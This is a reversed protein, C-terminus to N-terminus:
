IPAPVTERDHVHTIMSDVQEILNFGTTTLRTAMTVRAIPSGPLALCGPDAVTDARSFGPVTALGLTLESGDIRRPTSGLWHPVVHALDPADRVRDRLPVQPPCPLGLLAALHELMLCSEGQRVSIHCSLHTSGQFRPNVETFLPKGDHVLYDVGFSGRYGHRRLWGGIRRTSDEIMTVIQPDVDRM